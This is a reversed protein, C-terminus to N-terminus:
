AAKEGRRVPEAFPVTKIAKVKPLVESAFLRMSKEAVDFDMGGFAFHAIIANNDIQRHVDALKDVVQEPTGWPMLDVFNAITADLNDQNAQITKQYFEYGKTGKLRDGAM